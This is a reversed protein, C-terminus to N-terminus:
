PPYEAKPSTSVRSATSFATSAAPWPKPDPRNPIAIGVASGRRSGHSGHSGGEADPSSQRATDGKFAIGIAAAAPIDAADIIDTAPRESGDRADVLQLICSAAVLGLAALNFLRKAETVQSDPLKLGDSKLVRFVEEIRWRLRYLRVVDVADELTEL